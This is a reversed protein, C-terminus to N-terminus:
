NIRIIVESTQSGNDFFAITNQFQPWKKLEGFDYKEIKQNQCSVM